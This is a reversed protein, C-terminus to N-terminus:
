SFSRGLMLLITDKQKQDVNNYVDIIVCNRMHQGLYSDKSLIPNSLLESLNPALGILMQLITLQQEYSISAINGLIKDIDKECAEDIMYNNMENVKDKTTKDIQSTAEHHEHKVENQYDSQNSTAKVSAPATNKEKSFIDDVDDLSIITKPTNDTKEQPSVSESKSVTQEDDRIKGPLKSLYDYDIELFEAITQLHIKPFSNYHMWGAITNSNVGLVDTVDSYYLKEENLRRRICAAITTDKKPNQHLNKKKPTTVDSKVADTKESDKDTVPESKEQEAKKQQKKQNTTEANKIYQRTAKEKEAQEVLKVDIPNVLEEETMQTFQLIQNKFESYEKKGQLLKGFNYISTNFIQAAIDNRSMESKAVAMRLHLYIYKEDQIIVPVQNSLEVLNQKSVNLVKAFENFESDSPKEYGCLIKKIRAYDMELRKAFSAVNLRNTYLLKQLLYGFDNRADYSNLIIQEFDKLPRKLLDAIARVVTENINCQYVSEVSQISINAEKAISRSTKGEVATYRQLLTAKNLCQIITDNRTSDLVLNQSKILKEFEESDLHLAKSFVDKYSRNIDTKGQCMKNLEDLSIHVEKAFEQPTYCSKYIMYKLRDGYINIGQSPLPGLLTEKEVGLAESIIEFSLPDPMLGDKYKKISDTMIGTNQSLKANSFNQEKMINKMNDTFHRQVEKSVFNGSNNDM